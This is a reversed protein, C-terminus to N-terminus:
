ALRNIITLAENAQNVMDLLNNEIEILSDVKGRSYEHKKVTMESKLLDDKIENIIKQKEEQYIKWGESSIMAQLKRAKDLKDQAGLKIEDNNM